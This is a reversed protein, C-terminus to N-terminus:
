PAQVIPAPQLLEGHDRAHRAARDRRAHQREFPALEREVAGADRRVEAVLHRPRDLVEARQADIDRRPDFAEDVHEIRNRFPYRGFVAVLEEAVRRQLVKGIGRGLRAEHEVRGAQLGARAHPHRALM